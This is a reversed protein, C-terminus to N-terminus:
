AGTAVACDLRPAPAPRPPTGDTPILRPRPRRRGILPEQDIYTDGDRLGVYLEGSATAVVGGGAVVDGVSLHTGTLRGYTARRGDGHRVVLYRVGAVDGAFTVVGAALARVSTGAPVSYELGRNGACYPCPPSRFHDVVPADVPPWLCDAAIATGPTSVALAVLAVMTAFRIM